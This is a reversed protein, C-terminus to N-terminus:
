STAPRAGTPPKFRRARIPVSIPTALQRAEGDGPKGVHFLYRATGRTIAVKIVGAVIVAVAVVEIGLAAWEILMRIFGIVDSSSM